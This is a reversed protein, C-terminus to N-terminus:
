ICGLHKQVQEFINIDAITVIIIANEGFKEKAQEITFIPIQKGCINKIGNKNVDIVGVMNIGCRLIHSAISEFAGGGGYCLVPNPALFDETKLAKLQEYTKM